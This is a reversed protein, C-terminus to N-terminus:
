RAEQGCRAAPACGVGGLTLGGGGGVSEEHSSRWVV